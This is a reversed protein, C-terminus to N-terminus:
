AYHIANYANLPQARRHRVWVPRNFQLKALLYKLLMAFEHRGVNVDLSRLDIM